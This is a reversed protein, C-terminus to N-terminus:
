IFLPAIIQINVSNLYSPRYLSFKNQFQAFKVNELYNNLSNYNTTSSIQGIHPLNEEQEIYTNENYIALIMQANIYCLVIILFIALRETTLPGKKWTLFRELRTKPGRLRLRRAKTM